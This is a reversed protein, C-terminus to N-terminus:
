PHPVLVPIADAMSYTSGAVLNIRYRQGQTMSLSQVYRIDSALQEAQAALNIPQDSFRPILFAALIATIILVAMLEVLTFGSQRAEVDQQWSKTM